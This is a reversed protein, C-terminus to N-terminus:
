IEKRLYTSVIYAVREPIISRMCICDLKLVCELYWNPVTWWCSSCTYSDINVQGPYKYISSCTPGRLIFTNICKAAYALHMIGGECCIIATARRMVYILQQLDTKGRLDLAVNEILTDMLTGIQIIPLSLLPVLKNWGDWQKTQKITGHQIDIGNNVLIYNDPFSEGYVKEVFVESDITDCFLGLSLNVLQIQNLSYLDIDNSNKCAVDRHNPHMNYLVEWKSFDVEFPLIIGSKTYWKGVISRIDCFIDYSDKYTVLAEKYDKYGVEIIDAIYPNNYFLEKYKRIIITVPVRFITYIKKVHDTITVTGGMGDLQMIAIKM